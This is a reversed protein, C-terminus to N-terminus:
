VSIQLNKLRSVDDGAGKTKVSLSVFTRDWIWEEAGPLTQVHVLSLIQGSVTVRSAPLDIESRPLASLS